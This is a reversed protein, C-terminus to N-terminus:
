RFLFGFFSTPQAPPPLRGAQKRPGNSAERREVPVDAIRRDESKLAALLRADRGYIDERVALHGADDVFATQYTLHVPIPTTLHIDREGTGYMRRIKDATYGDRPNAINLLVEAYRDPFQVRMCGHSFARRDKAFLHKDPTDHQYVLFKNPFNFRIRGLANAEGPPQYIRVSGDRNRELKLGIRDLAQPDQALAPLYENNIISPPVNWTPNVTIFKMTESLLPTAKEGPQGTVVKTTWVMEGRDMVRLTYDPINVMVYAQGLDRPMWRWREMNAILLDADRDRRPGNLAEVTANSLTGTQPLERGRQFKKVAEALVKDFVSGDGENVGLRERLFPVRPDEMGIKLTQGAAIRTRGADGTRGRSEALKAKLAKYGPQPPNYSDLAEAINTADALKALVAAPEPPVLDYVIDASVRSYHVRGTQAHRAYTLMSVTFKLEAEALAAPDTNSFSPVPYDTPDLGDADVGALYTAAAKGRAGEAGNEVWIPAYNRASYFGEIAAKNKRDIIRDVKGAFLERIKEAVPQDVTLVPAEAAAPAPAAVAPTAPTAIAPTAVAPTVAAPAALAPATTAPTAAPAAAQPPTAGTPDEFTVPGIDAATPPPLNAPEPMPVAASIEAPTRPAALGPASSGTVVLAVATTALWLELRSGRM